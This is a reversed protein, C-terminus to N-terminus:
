FPASYYLVYKSLSVYTFYKCIFQHLNSPLNDSNAYPDVFFFKASTSLKGWVYTKYINIFSDQKYYTGPNALTRFGKIIETVQDGYIERLHKENYSKDLLHESIHTNLELAQEM